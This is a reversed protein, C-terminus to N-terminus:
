HAAETPMTGQDSINMHSGNKEKIYNDRLFSGYPGLDQVSREQIRGVLLGELDEIKRNQNEIDLFLQDIKLEAKQHLKYETDLADLRTHM